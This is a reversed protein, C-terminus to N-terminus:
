GGREERAIAVLHQLRGTEQDDVDGNDDVAVAGALDDHDLLSLVPVEGNASVLIECLATEVLNALSRNQREAERRASEVISDELRLAVQTKM